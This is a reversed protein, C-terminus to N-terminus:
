YRDPQGAPVALNRAPRLTVYNVVVGLGLVAITVWVGSHYGEVFAYVPSSGARLASDQRSRLVAGIVTIGLLGAVERSGNLLASAIGARAQPTAALVLSTQPINLLSIDAGLLAIIPLLSSFSAHEGYPLILVAGALMMALRLAVTRHGGILKGAPASAGAFVAVAIAMPVFLLGAKTPSFGLIAQLYIATFFYIGFAWIM